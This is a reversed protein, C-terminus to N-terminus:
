EYETGESRHHKLIFSSFYSRHLLLSLAPFIDFDYISFVHVSFILLISIKRRAGLLYLFQQRRETINKNAVLCMRTPTPNHIGKAYDARRGMFLKSKQNSLVASLPLNYHVSSFFTHSSWLIKDNLAKELPLLSFSFMNNRIWGLRGFGNHRLM